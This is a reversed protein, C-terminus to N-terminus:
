PMFCPNKKVEEELDIGQSKEVKETALIIMALTGELIQKYEQGMESDSISYYAIGDEEREKIIDLARFEDIAKTLSKEEYRLNRLSIEGDPNTVYARGIIRKPETGFLVKLPRDKFKLSSELESKGANKYNSNAYTNMGM